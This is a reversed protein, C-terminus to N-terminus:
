NLDSITTEVTQSRTMKNKDDVVFDINEKARFLRWQKKEPSYAAADIDGSGWSFPWDQFYSLIPTLEEKVFRGKREAGIWLMEQSFVYVRDDAIAIADVGRKLWEDPLGIFWDSLREGSLYQGDPTFRYCWEKRFLLFNLKTIDYYIDDVKGDWTAPAEKWFNPEERVLGMDDKIFTKGLTNVYVSLGAKHNHDAAVIHNALMKELLHEQSEHGHYIGVYDVPDKVRPILSGSIFYHADVYDYTRFRGAVAIAHWHNSVVYLRDGKKIVANGFEDTVQRSFLYNQLTTKSKEEKIMISDPVGLQLLQKQMESAECIGSGHAACGGSLIIKDFAIGSEYLGYGIQVRERLTEMNASGLVLMVRKQGFASPIPLALGLFTLVLMVGFFVNLRYKSM